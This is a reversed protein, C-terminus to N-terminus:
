ECGGDLDKEAQRRSEAFIVKLSDPLSNIDTFFRKAKSRYEFLANERPSISEGTFSSNMVTEFWMNLGGDMEFCNKYGLGHALTLAYASHSDSNSYFIYRTDPNYLYTEPRRDFFERIPINISGPISVKKFEEEDRLDILQVTSDEDVMYRAVQDVSILYQRDFISEFLDSPKSIFSYKGSGPLLVLLSALLFLSIIISTKTNM